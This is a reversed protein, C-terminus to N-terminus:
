LLIVCLLFYLSSPKSTQMTNAPSYNTREVAEGIQEPADAMMLRVLQNVSQEWFVVKADRVEEAWSDDLQM